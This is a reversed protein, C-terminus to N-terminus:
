RKGNGAKKIAEETEKAEANLLDRLNNYFSDLMDYSM